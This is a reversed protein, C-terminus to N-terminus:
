RFGMGTEVCEPRETVGAKAGNYDDGGIVIM